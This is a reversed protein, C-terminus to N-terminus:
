VYVRFCLLPRPNIRTPLNRAPLHTQLSLESRVRERSNWSPPQSFCLCSIPGPFFWYQSKPLLFWHLLAAFIVSYVLTSLPLWYFHMHKPSAHHALQDLYSMLSVQVKIQIWYLSTIQSPGVSSTKYLFACNKRRRKKSQGWTEWGMDWGARYACIVFHEVAQFSFYIEVVVQYTWSIQISQINNIRISSVIQQRHTRLHIKKQTKMIFYFDEGTWKESWFQIEM